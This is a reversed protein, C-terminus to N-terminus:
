SPRCSRQGWTIGFSGASSASRSRPILCIHAATAGLVVIVKPRVVAIERILFQRCTSAEDPEPARNKPPRCRNINGIFVDKRA